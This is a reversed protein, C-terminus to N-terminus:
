KGSKFQQFVRTQVRRADNPLTRPVALKKIDAESLFITPNNALEPKVFQKSAPNPNGYFVENTLSAHVEPRLIYNIFAHAADVNKADKPIAMTDIFMTAGAPPILPKITFKQKAEAARANAINFDGSYGLSVCIQGQAMDNIPGPSFIRTVYPRAKMLVDRAADYDKANTSYGDKGAYIMAVPVVESASDLVHIGCSKLKSAYEPKFILDLPNAPMPTSGLAEKVKQENIGVTVFGWLWTVLYKNGPDAEALKAQLAPDLNKLNPIKAPDLPQFIGGKIQQAAFHASPVVIDYGTRGAVLKAHLTENSEITADYKVKIGTEKEFNAIVDPGIYDAWNMVNLVKSGQAFAGSSVGAALLVAACLTSLRSIRAM